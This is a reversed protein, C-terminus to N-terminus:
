DFWTSVLNDHLQCKQILENGYQDEFYTYAYTYTSSNSYLFADNENYGNDLNDFFYHSFAGGYSGDRPLNEDYYEYTDGFWMASYYRDNWEFESTSMILIPENTRSSKKYEYVFDGSDCSDVLVIVNQSELCQIKDCFLSSLIYDDENSLTNQYLISDGGNETDYAGTASGHAVMCIFVLSDSTELDDIDDICDEWDEQDERYIVDSFGENEILYNGYEEMVTENAADSAWLFLAVKGDIEFNRVVTSSQPVVGTFQDRYGTKEIRITYIKLAAVTWSFSYYGSGNTTDTRKVVGDESLKVTVGSIPNESTKITVTGSFDVPGTYSASVPKVESLLVPLVLTAVVLGILIIRKKNM